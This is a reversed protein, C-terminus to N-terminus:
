HNELLMNGLDAPHAATSVRLADSVEARANDSYTHHWQIM